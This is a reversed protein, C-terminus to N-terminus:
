HKYLRELVLKNIIPDDRLMYDNVTYLIEDDVKRPAAERLLFYGLQSLFIVGLSNWVFQRNFPVKNKWKYLGISGLAVANVLLNRKIHAFKVTEMYHNFREADAPAIRKLEDNQALLDRFFLIRAQDNMRRVALKISDEDTKSIQRGTTEDIM